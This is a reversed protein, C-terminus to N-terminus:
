PIPRPPRPTGGRRTPGPFKVGLREITPDLAPVRLSSPYARITIGDSESLVTTRFGHDRKRERLTLRLM